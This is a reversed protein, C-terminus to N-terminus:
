GTATGCCTTGTWPYSNVLMRYDYLNGGVAEHFLQEVSTGPEVQAPYAECSGDSKHFGLTIEIM